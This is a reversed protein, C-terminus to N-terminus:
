LVFNLFHLFVMSFFNMPQLTFVSSEMFVLLLPSHYSIIIVTVIDFIECLLMFILDFFNMFAMLVIFLTLDIVLSIFKFFYRLMIIRLHFFYSLIYCFKECDKLISFSLFNLRHFSLMSFFQFIQPLLFNILNFSQILFLCFKYLGM